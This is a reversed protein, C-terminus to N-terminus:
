FNYGKGISQFLINTMVENVTANQTTLLWNSGEPKVKKKIIKFDLKKIKNEKKIPLFCM